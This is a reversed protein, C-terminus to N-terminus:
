YPMVAYRISDWYKVDAFDQALEHITRDDTPTRDTLEIDEVDEIECFCHDDETIGGDWPRIIDLGIQEPIFWIGDLLSDMIKQKDEETAEGTVTVEQVAKYNSADRYLYWITTNM